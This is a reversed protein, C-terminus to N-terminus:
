RSLRLICIGREGVFLKSQVYSEPFVTYKFPFCSRKIVTTDKLCLRTGGEVVGFALIDYCNCPTEKSFLGDVELSFVSYATELNRVYLVHLEMNDSFTRRMSAYYIM